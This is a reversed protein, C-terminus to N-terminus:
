AYMAIYLVMKVHLNKLKLDLAVATVVRFINWILSSSVYGLFLEEARYWDLFLANYDIKWKLFCSSIKWYFQREATNFWCVNQFIESM